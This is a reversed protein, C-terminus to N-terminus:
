FVLYGFPEVVECLKLVLPPVEEADISVEEGSRTGLRRGASLSKTESSWLSWRRRWRGTVQGGPPCFNPLLKPACLIGRLFSLGTQPAKGTAPAPNSGALRFVAVDARFGSAQCFAQLRASETSGATIGSTVSGLEPGSAVARSRGHSDLETKSLVGSASRSPPPAHAGGAASFHTGM